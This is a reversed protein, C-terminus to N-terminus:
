DKLLLSYFLQTFMFRREIKFEYFYIYDFYIECTSDKGDRHQMKSAKNTGGKSSYKAKQPIKKLRSSM